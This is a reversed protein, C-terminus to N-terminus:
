SRQTSLCVFDGSEFDKSFRVHGLVMLFWCCPIGAYDEKRTKKVDM